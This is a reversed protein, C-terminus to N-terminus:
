VTVRFRHESVMGVYENFAQIGPRLHGFFKAGCYYKIPDCRWLIAIPSDFVLMTQFTESSFYEILLEECAAMNPESAEIYTGYEESWSGVM